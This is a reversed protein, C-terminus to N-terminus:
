KILIKRATGDSYRMINLGHQGLKVNRGELNYIDIVAVKDSLAETNDIGTKDDMDVILYFVDKFSSAEYAAKVGKPVYLVSESAIRSFPCRNNDDVLVKEDNYISVTKLSSCDCFAFRGISTVSNPIEISTLSSCKQFTGDGISTVSNPITISTLNDCAYFTENEIRTVSNPITISTLSSCYYFAHHGIRTVSNPINISTLKQCSAFAESGISTVSNPIKISTLSQCEVFAQFGISTVSNPIRISKLDYSFGFAKEGISTVSYTEDDVVITSPIVVNGAYGGGPKCTVEATKNDRDLFYCFGDVFADHALASTALCLLSVLIPLTKRKM